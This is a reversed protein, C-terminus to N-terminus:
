FNAMAHFVAEAWERWDEYLFTGPAANQSFSNELILSNGWSKWKDEHKLQPINDEPFDIILSAAWDQINTGQPIMM